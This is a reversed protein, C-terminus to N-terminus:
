CPPVTRRSRRGSPVGRRRCGPPRIAPKKTVAALKRNEAAQVPIYRVMGSVEHALESQLDILRLLEVRLKRAEAPASLAAIRGRLTRLTQEAADVKELQGPVPKAKLQLGRYARSVSELEVVLSQQTKNVEVIYAAVADRRAQTEDDGSDRLLVVAAGVALALLM